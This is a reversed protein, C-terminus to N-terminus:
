VSPRATAVPAACTAATRYTGGASAPWGPRRQRGVPPSPVSTGGAASWRPGPTTGARQNPRTDPFGDATRRHGAEPCAAHILRGTGIRLAAVPPGEVAAAAAAM